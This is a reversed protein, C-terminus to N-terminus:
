FLHAVKFITAYFLPIESWHFVRWGNISSITVFSAWGSIALDIQSIHMQWRYINHLIHCNTGSPTHQDQLYIEFLYLCWPNYKRQTNKHNIKRFWCSTSPMSMLPSNKSATSKRNNNEQSTHVDFQFTGLNVMLLVANGKSRAKMSSM